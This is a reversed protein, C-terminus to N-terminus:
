LNLWIQLNLIAFPVQLDFFHNVAISYTVDNCKFCYMYLNICTSTQLATRHFRSGVVFIQQGRRQALGEVQSLNAAFLLCDLQKSVRGAKRPAPSPMPPPLEPSLQPSNLRDHLVTSTISCACGMTRHKFVHKLVHQRQVSFPRPLYPQGVSLFSLEHLYFWVMSDPAPIFMEVAETVGPTTGNVIYNLIEKWKVKKLYFHNIM